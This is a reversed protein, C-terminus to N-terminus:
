NNKFSVKKDDVQMLQNYTLLIGVGIVTLILVGAVLLTRNNNEKTVDSVFNNYTEPFAHNYIIQEM